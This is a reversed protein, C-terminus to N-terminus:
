ISRWITAPGGDGLRHKRETAEALGALELRELAAYITRLGHRGRFVRVLEPATLSAMRLVRLM